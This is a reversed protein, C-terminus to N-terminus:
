SGSHMWFEPHPLGVRGTLILADGFEPALDWVNAAVLCAAEEASHAIVKLFAHIGEDDAHLEDANPMDLAELVREHEDATLSKRPLFSVSAGYEVGEKSQRAVSERISSVSAHIDDCSEASAANRTPQRTNGVVQHCTQRQRKRGKSSRM